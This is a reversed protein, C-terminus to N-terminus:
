TVKSLETALYPYYKRVLKELREGIAKEGLQNRDLAHTEWSIKNMPNFHLVRIPKKSRNYRKVFGSCGVNYTNDVVTVRKGFKESKLVRNITPEEKEEGASLLYDIVTVIDKASYKWFISGGNFKRNSYTAIGVDEFKIGDIPHNEWCDLDHSWVVEGEINFRGANDFLYSLGFMKSGTWCHNNPEEWLTTEVEMFKFEFNALVVIDRPKWGCEMSNEIQSKLMTEVNVQNYKKHDKRMNAVMFNIM